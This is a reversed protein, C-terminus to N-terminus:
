VSKQDQYLSFIRSVGSQAAQALFSDQDEPSRFLSFQVENPATRIQYSCHLLKDRHLPKHSVPIGPHYQVGSPTIQITETDPMFDLWIERGTHPLLYSELPIHLPLPPLFIPCDLQEAYLESVGPPSPLAASLTTALHLAAPNDPRQFDLLIGDATELLPSLQDVIISLDPDKPPIADDLILMSGNPLFAPLHTLGTGDESFHCSMWAIKEPLTEAETFEEPTMALYHPLGM